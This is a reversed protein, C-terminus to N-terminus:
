FGALVIKGRAQGRELLAHARKLNSANIPGLREKATTKLLGEDILRAVEALLKAQAKMDATQFMARTFMFEWLLAISKPKLLRLDLPGPDDILALKGFPALLDSFQAFYSETQTLSAVHTVEKLGLAQLQPLLPQRYDLVQHAGLESVWARSEDRGATGIVTASTLRSALQVLISGVGGAAGSVLLVQDTAAKGVLLGLHDFLMEWATISTLPLAAAEIPSLSTPALAALREDVCQFECNSGPRNLDGAYWVRDGIEFGLVEAGKAEVRGVADWGLIRPHEPRSRVRVKTDVPNVSVAEVEVLLDRAGPSPKPLDLDILANPDDIPLCDTFAVAKM